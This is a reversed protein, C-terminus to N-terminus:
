DVLVDIEVELVDCDVLWDVDVLIEVLLVELEVECDVVEDVEVEV